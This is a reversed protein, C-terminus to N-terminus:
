FLSHLINEVLWMGFQAVVVVAMAIWLGTIIVIMIREFM